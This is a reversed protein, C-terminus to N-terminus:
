LWAELMRVYMLTGVFSLVATVIALDFYVDRNFGQALVVLAITGITSTLQLAVFRDMVDGTMALLAAPLLLVVFASGALLWENV